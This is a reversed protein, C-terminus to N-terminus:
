VTLDDYRLQLIDIYTQMASSQAKLLALTYGDLKKDYLVRHLKDLKLQVEKREVDLKMAILELNVM